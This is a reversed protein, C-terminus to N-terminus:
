KVKMFYQLGYGRAKQRDGRISHLRRVEPRNRTRAIKYSLIDNHFRDDTIPTAGIELLGGFLAHNIMISEGLPLPFDAQRFGAVQGEANL